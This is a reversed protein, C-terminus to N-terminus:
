FVPYDLNHAPLLKKLLLFQIRYPRDGQNDTQNIPFNAM